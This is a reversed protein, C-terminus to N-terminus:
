RNRWVQSRLFRGRPSLHRTADRRRSCGNRIVHSARRMRARSCQRVGDVVCLNQGTPCPEAIIITRKVSVQRPYQADQEFVIFELEFTTGPNANPNIPCGVVGKSKFYHAPCAPVYELCDSPPCSLTFESIDKPDAGGTQPQMVLVGPECPVDATPIQDADCKYYPNYQKLQISAGFGEYTKLTAIPPDAVEDEEEADFFTELEVDELCVGDVSCPTNICTVEGPPCSPIVVLKRTVTESQLGSSDMAYFSIEHTDAIQTDIKCGSVGDM